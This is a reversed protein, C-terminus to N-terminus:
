FLKTGLLAKNKKEMTLYVALDFSMFRYAYLRLSVKNLIYYISSKGTKKQRKILDYKLKVKKFFLMNKYAYRNELVLLIHSLNKM